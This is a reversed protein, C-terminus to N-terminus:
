TDLSVDDWSEGDGCAWALAHHREAAIAHAEAREEAALHRYIKGYAHFDGRLPAPLLGQEHGRVATAAVAQDLSVFRGPLEMTDGDTLDATRARWHWLRASQRERDLEDDARLEGRGPEPALAGPAFPTDYAPLEALGLAWLLTGLAEGQWPDDAAQGQLVACREVVDRQKRAM